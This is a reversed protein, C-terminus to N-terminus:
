QKATSNEFFEISKVNKRRKYNKATSLFLGKKARTIGVYILRLTENVQETKLDEPTKIKNNEVISKITQAFHGGSKLKAKGTNTPYNEENFEPIFVYDFEDGKSKHMTMIQVNEEDAAAKEDEFFKFASTPKNAFYNLQSLLEEETKANSSLRKIFTSVIYANSKDSITQAYYLGIKLALSATDTQYNNLWYNIDSHLQLLNEEAINDFNEYFFPPAEPKFRNLEETKFQKIKLTEYCKALNLINTNSIPNNLVCLVAYIIKYINKQALCDLKVETKIENEYLFESYENVQSNLRLLIAITAKKNNQKIKRIENLIYLKEDREIDFIQYDPRHEIKPNNETGQMAIPYFANTENKEKVLNNALEYIDKACRQSCSMEVTKATKLFQKLGDVSSNTFTSTIAQNIDGCRVYNNYKGSLLEILRQQMETSDQAEDEIIFKCLNQYYELVDKNEELIKVAYNLMDDYDLMNNTKLVMNYAEYFKFFNKIDEFKSVLPTKRLTLKITSICKTYTDLKDEDAKLKYFLEKIIKEKLTDDCIEFNDDLGVKTYNANEKIIRLALGHITSINPINSNEPMASQIREKFNKAASEMYTLVFINEAKTGSLMLKIVLFLLITTKGAGPVAIVGMKGSNYELVPKQDDRPTIKFVPETKTEESIFENLGGFNENGTNDYLSAFWFIEKEALFCLKRVIRATKDRTNKVAIENNYELKEDDRGFVWANYLTGTDQKLWESSSIDLWLQYKTELSYDTIKQPSAVIISNAKTEFSNIPNESIISNETQLIFEKAVNASYFASEFSAAEKILFEYKKEDFVTIEPKIVNEFIIKIQESLKNKSVKLSSICSKLNTYKENYLDNKFDYNCLTGNQSYEQLIPRCQRYPIKLLNIILNKLESKRPLLGNASKLVTIIYAIFEDDCLKEGGSLFQFSINNAESKLAETLVDDTMPTIISIDQPLIGSNLLVKIKNVVNELMDLRRPSSSIKISNCNVKTGQKIAAFLNEAENQFTKQTKDEIEKAAPNLKKYETPGNKFACLYGCRSSGNKDYTLFCDKLQPSLEKIFQFLAYSCEDFDNVLLYKIPEFYNTNKQIVPLMALQRLYDFCKYEITKRKYEDIVKEAENSFSENLAQSRAKIEPKTLRNQVILSYRRFLQHLLNVKSIYDSFDVEKICQKFIYQSIELGCLNINDDKKYKLFNKVFDSNNNVSNYCLGYFTSIKLSSTNIQPFLETLKRLFLSKQYANLLIVQIANPEIGSKLLGTYQNILFNLRAKHCVSQFLM